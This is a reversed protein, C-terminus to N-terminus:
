QAIAERRHLFKEYAVGALMAASGCVIFAASKLLLSSEYEFFRSVILTAVFLSGAWFIARREEVIGKGICVGAIVLAALNIVVTPLADSFRNLVTALCILVFALAAGLVYRRQSDDMRSWARAMLAVGTALALGAPILWYLQNPKVYGGWKWVEHFSWFYASAALTTIGLNAVPNGFEAKIGSARHFSGVAWAVFGGAAITILSYRNTDLQVFALTLSAGIFGLFALTYLARSRIMWALPVIAAVLLPPYVTALREHYDTAFGFFWVFSTVIVLLGTIWSRAAWAMALSGLAWVGFARYWEGSVQYAQALLGINAGFVLCGCFILAHGLRPWGSRYRLWYGAIYFVLLAAFLLVVKPGRSIENWHAAVFSIVGGGVLLSGFTFLAAALLRSSEKKLDDLDYLRRLHGADEETMIGQETWTSIERRLAARFKVSRNFEPAM